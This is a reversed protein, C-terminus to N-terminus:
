RGIVAKLANFAKEAAEYAKKDDPSDEASPTVDALSLPSDHFQKVLTQMDNMNASYTTPDKLSNAADRFQQALKQDGNRSAELAKRVLGVRQQHYSKFEPTNKEAADKDDLQKRLPSIKRFNIYTTTHSLLNSLLVKTDQEDQDTMGYKNGVYLRAFSAGDLLDKLKTGVLSKLFDQFTHAQQLHPVYKQLDTSELLLNKMKIM